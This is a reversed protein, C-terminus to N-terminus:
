DWSISFMKHVHTVAQNRAHKFNEMLYALQSIETMDADTVLVFASPMHVPRGQEQLFAAAVGFYLAALRTKAVHTYLV